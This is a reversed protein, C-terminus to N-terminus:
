HLSPATPLPSPQPAPPACGVTTGATALVNALSAAGVLQTPGLPATTTSLLQCVMPDV